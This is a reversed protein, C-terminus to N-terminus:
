ISKKKKIVIHGFTFSWRIMVGMHAQLIGWKLNPLGKYYCPLEPFVKGSSQSYLQPSEAVHANPLDPGSTPCPPRLNLQCKKDTWLHESPDTSKYNSTFWTLARLSVQNIECTHLKSRWTQNYLSNYNYSYSVQSYLSVQISCHTVLSQFTILLREWYNIVCYSLIWFNLTVLHFSMELSNVMTLSYNHWLSPALVEGWTQLDWIWDSVAAYLIPTTFRTDEKHHLITQTWHFPPPHQPIGESLHGLTFCSLLSSSENVTNRRM